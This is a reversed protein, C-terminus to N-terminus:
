DRMMIGYLADQLHEITDPKLISTALIEPHLATHKKMMDSAQAMIGSITDQNSKDCKTLVMQYCVAHNDLLEMLEIDQPKLGHRSDVLLLVRRLTPRFALYDTILQNWQALLSRSVKAYGYGPLDVLMLKQRLNFFNIQRTHGPNQSTRALSKRFTLANLLSSKGVNSRGAFAVEPLTFRPLQEETAAGAVFDCEGKFFRELEKKSYTLENTSM